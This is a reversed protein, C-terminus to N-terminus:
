APWWALIWPVQQDDFGVLCRDGRAPLVLRAVTFNDTAEAGQAVDIVQPELRPMWRCPGFQLMPDFADLLVPVQDTVLAATEAITGAYLGDLSVDRAGRDRQIEEHLSSV